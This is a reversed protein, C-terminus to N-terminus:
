VEYLREMKDQNLGTLEELQKDIKRIETNIDNWIPYIHSKNVVYVGRTTKITLEDQMINSAAILVEKRRELDMRLLVKDTIMGKTGQLEQM